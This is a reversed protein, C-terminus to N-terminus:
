SQQVRGSLNLMKLAWLAKNELKVTLHCAKGYLLLYLFASILTNFTTRYAWLEQDLKRRLNTRNANVINALIFKIERNFM